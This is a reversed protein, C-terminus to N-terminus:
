FFHTLYIFHNDESCGHLIICVPDKILDVLVLTDTVTHVTLMGKRVPRDKDLVKTSNTSVERTGNDNVIDSLVELELWVITDENLTPEIVHGVCCKRLQSREEFFNRLLLHIVHSVGQSLESILHKLLNGFSYM